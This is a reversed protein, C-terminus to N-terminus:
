LKKRFIIELLIILVCFQYALLVKCSLNCAIGSDWHNPVHYVFLLTLFSFDFCLVKMYIEIDYLIIEKPVCLVCYLYVVQEPSGFSIIDLAENWDTPGNAGALVRPVLQREVHLETNVYNKRSNLSLFM